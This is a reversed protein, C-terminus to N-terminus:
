PRRALCFFTLLSVRAVPLGPKSLKRSCTTKKTCSPLCRLSREVALAAIWAEATQQRVQLLTLNQQTDALAVEANAADIRARRKARSPVEQTVGIAQMTMAEAGLEGRSEGEIPLNQVGLRLKPDPLAGAPIAASRAAQQNAAQAVLSPAEREALEIAQELTLAMSLGPFGSASALLGAVCSRMWFIRYKM